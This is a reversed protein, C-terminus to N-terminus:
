NNMPWPQRSTHRIHLITIRDDAVRYFIRYPYRVLSLVPVGPRQEVRPGSEPAEGIQAVAAEMRNLLSTAVRAGFTRRTDASVKGLDALARVSWAVKM